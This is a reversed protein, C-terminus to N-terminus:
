RVAGRPDTGAGFEQRMQELKAIIAPDDESLANFKDADIGRMLLKVRMASRSVEDTARMAMLDEIMRNIRGAM